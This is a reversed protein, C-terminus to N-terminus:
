HRKIFRFPHLILRGLRYSKSKRIREAAYKQEFLNNIRLYVEDPIDPLGRWIPLSEKWKKNFIELNKFFLNSGAKKFQEQESWNHEVLIDRCVCVRYNLSLTQLCIDMDYMHFGSYNINDFSIHDFIKKRAFFCLGDVACVDILSEGEKFWEEHFHNEIINGDKNLNHQSVFPSSYWYMPTSPIYHSGAFGIIGINEDEFHKVIQSGWNTSRFLVDDHLFCLLSGNARKVGENYATFISFSNSSNDIVITEHEIRITNEINKRLSSSRNSSRSCIIFSIM